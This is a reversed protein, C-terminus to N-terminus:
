LNTRQSKAVKTRLCTQMKGFKLYKTLKHGMIGCIHCHYNLPRPPVSTHANITAPLLTILYVLFTTNELKFTAIKVNLCSFLDLVGEIMICFWPAEISMM